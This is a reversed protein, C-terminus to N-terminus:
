AADPHDWPRPTLPLVAADGQQHLGHVLNLVWFATATGAATCLFQARAMGHRRARRDCEEAILRAALQQKASPPRPCWEGNSVDCLPFPVRPEGGSRGRM